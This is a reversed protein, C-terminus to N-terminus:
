SNENIIYKELNKENLKNKILNLEKISYLFENSHKHLNKKNIKNMWRSQRIKYIQDIQDCIKASDLSIQFNLKKSNQNYSVEDLFCKLMKHLPKTSKEWNTDSNFKKGEFKIFGPENSFNIFFNEKDESMVELKRIRIKKNRALNIQIDINKKSLRFQIHSGGKKFNFSKVQLIKTDVFLSLITTIHHMCDIYIPITPDYTKLVGNRIENQKDFWTLKISKIKKCKANLIKRFNILYNNFLFINSVKLLNQNKNAKNILEKIELLTMCVPKEVLFCVNLSLALMCTKFHDRASNAIIIGDLNFRTINDINDVIFIKRKNNSNQEQKLKKFNFKSFIFFTVNEDVFYDLTKLIERAWRGGGIIGLKGFNNKKM